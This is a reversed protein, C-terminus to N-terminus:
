SKADRSQKLQDAMSEVDQVTWGHDALLTPDPAQRCFALRIAQRMLVSERKDEDTIVSSTATARPLVTLQKVRKRGEIWQRYQDRAKLRNRLEDIFKEGIKFIYDDGSWTSAEDIYKTRKLESLAPVLREKARRLSDWGSAALYAAIDKWYEATYDRGHQVALWFRYSLYSYLQKALESNLTQVFRVDLLAIYGSDLNKRVFEGLKIWTKEQV